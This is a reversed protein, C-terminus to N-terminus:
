NEVVVRVNCPTPFQGQNDVATLKLTYVGNPVTGTDWWALSTGTVQQSQTGGISVWNFPVEGVGYEVKYFQFNPITATGIIGVVGGIAENNLPQTISVAPNCVAPSVHPKHYGPPPPPPPPPGPRPPPASCPVSLVQGVYLWDSTLGNAQRLQWVSTNYMAAIGSLTDGSVVTYSGSCTPPGPPAVVPPRPPPAAPPSVVVVQQVVVQPAPQWSVQAPPTYAVDCVRITVGAHIYNPNIINNIQILSMPNVGFKAAISSVSDGPQITYPVCNGAGPKAPNPAPAAPPATHGPSVYNRVPVNLRQGVALKRGDRIGNANMIVVPSTGYRDSISNLTEGWQVVHILQGSYGPKLMSEASATAGVTVLGAVVAAVLIVIFMLRRRM